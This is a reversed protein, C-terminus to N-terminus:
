PGAGKKITRVIINIADADVRGSDSFVRHLVYFLEAYDDPGLEIGHRQTAAQLERTIDRLLESQAPTMGSSRVEPRLDEKSCQLAAAIKELETDSFKGDAERKYYRARSIGIAAALREPSVKLDLRRARIRSGTPHM